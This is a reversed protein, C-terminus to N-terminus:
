RWDEANGTFSAAFHLSAQLQRDADTVASESAIEGAAALDELVRLAESAACFGISDCAGALKHAIEELLPCDGTDRATMLQPWSESGIQIFSQMLASLKEEGLAQLHMKLLERDILNDNPTAGTEPTTIAADPPHDANCYRAIASLLQPLRVPKAIVDQLGAEQYRAIDESRVSATLAVIPTEHNLSDAQSRILSSTELGSIGPLHMDMLILDFRQQTALRVAINGDAAISVRHQYQALLGTVVQQNIEVDEVLLLQAPRTVPLAVPPETDDVNRGYTCDLSIELWFCSGQGPSSKVGIGGGLTAALEKCIALGLGTGGFRRTITDDAQTFREFIQEQLSPDIGIGNDIVEFRLWQKDGRKRQSFARLVVERKDATVTINDQDPKESFKIANSLLNTLIQRLSGAAGYCSDHLGQSELRLALGKDRAAPTMLQVLSDLMENLSFHNPKVEWAGEELRGYQLVHNFTELLAETSQHLVHLQQQQLQSLQGSELLQIMGLMGNMPTRIEHSMTALFQSKAKNAEEATEKAQQLSRTRETVMEQLQDRNYRLAEQEQERRSIDQRISLRMENLASALQDLEDPKAPRRRNLRLREEMRGSGIRRSFYAMSELHRTIQRQLIILIAVMILVVLLTQNLLISIATQWLRGYIAELDTKVVLTGLTRDIDKSTSYILDFRHEIVRHTAPLQDPPLSIGPSARDQLQLQIIDPLASIGKLQLELQVQDLDWLSKAISALYSSRILQIQQDIARVERRYDLMLQVSTSLLIFLFSCLTIYVMM